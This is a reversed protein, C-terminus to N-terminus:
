RGPQPQQDQTHEEGTARVAQVRTVTRRVKLDVLGMVLRGMWRCFLLKVGETIQFRCPEVTRGSAAVKGILM